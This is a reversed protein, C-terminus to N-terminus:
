WPLADPADDEPLAVKSPEPAGLDPLVPQTVPQGHGQPPMNMWESDIWAQRTRRIYLLRQPRNVRRDEEMLVHHGDCIRRPWLGPVSCNCNGFHQMSVKLAAQESLTFRTDSM